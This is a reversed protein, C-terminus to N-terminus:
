TNKISEDKKRPFDRFTLPIIKEEVEYAVSVMWDAYGPDMEKLSQVIEQKLTTELPAGRGPWIRFKIRLFAKGSKTKVLGETSPSTIFIGPFQEFTTTVIPAIKETMQNAKDPDKSLTIDVMCRVYGRPYNIVNTITRNPIYVEAGLHNKLVTFRMGIKQVLGTQGSIEVMDDLDILDSFILTLGTVVDQILGQSGFGIALGVVSASALYATLSVGLEKLVLGIAAFYLGFIVVSTVLGALSRTKAFSAHPLASMLRTGLMRVVVVTLHAGVVIALLVLIRTPYNLNVLLSSM